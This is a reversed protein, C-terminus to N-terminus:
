PFAAIWFHFTHAPLQQFVYNVSPASGALESLVAVILQLFAAFPGEESLCSSM